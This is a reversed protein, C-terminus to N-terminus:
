EEAYNIKKDEIKNNDGIITWKWTNEELSFILIYQSM